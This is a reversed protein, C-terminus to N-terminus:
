IGWAKLLVNWMMSLITPNEVSMKGNAKLKKESPSGYQGVDIGFENGGL